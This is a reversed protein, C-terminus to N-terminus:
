HASIDAKHLRLVDRYLEEGLLMKDREKSTVSEKWAQLPRMHLNILVATRLAEDDLVGSAKAHLLYLYSGANEHGYFHAADTINGRSDVFTKTVLKGIDHYLAADQLDKRTPCTQRMYMLASHLHGYLDQSHHPSDQSFGKTARLDFLESEIHMEIENWGEFYYAPQFAKLMSDYVSEPVTRERLANRRKCEYVPVIFMVCKKTCPIHEISRLFAIRKKRSLNTADYICDKGAKLDRTIRSHLIGFVVANDKDGTPALAMEERINDSSHWIYGHKVMEQAYTSKGSAPLGVLMVLNSM